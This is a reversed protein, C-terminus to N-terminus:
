AKTKTTLRVDWITPKNAEAKLIEKTREDPEVAPIEKTADGSAIMKMADVLAIQHKRSPSNYVDAEVGERVNYYMVHNYADYAKAFQQKAAFAAANLLAEAADNYEVQMVNDGDVWNGPAKKFSVLNFQVSLNSDSTLTIAKVNYHGTQRPLGRKEAVEALNKVAADMKDGDAQVLFLRALELQYQWALPGSVSLTRAVAIVKKTITTEAADFKNDQLIQEAANHCSVYYLKLCAMAIWGIVPVLLLLYSIKPLDSNRYQKLDVAKIANPDYLEKLIAFHKRDMQDGALAEAAVATVPSEPQPPPADSLPNTAIPNVVVTDGLKTTGGM